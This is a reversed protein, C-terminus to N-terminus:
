QDREDMKGDGDTDRGTRMVSGQADFREWFDIQGDGNTDREKRDIRPRGDPGVAYYFWIDSRGDFNTDMEAMVRVGDKYHDTWDFVGDFDSDIREMKLSGDDDFSSVIDMKGDLNLDVKKQVHVRGNAERERYVNVVDARGNADLDIEQMILGEGELPTEIVRDIDPTAEITSTPKPQCAVLILGCTAWLALSRQM